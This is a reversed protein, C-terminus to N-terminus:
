KLYQKIIGVIKDCSNDIALKKANMAMMLCQERDLANICDALKDVTLEDQIFIKAANQQVLPLANYYQHNDVAHPYPIFIAALGVSAIESVTSAGSRCIILDTDTYIQAMNHIFNTVEAKIGLKSYKNQITQINGKGAQHVIKNINTIKSCVLPMIENLISAGLSGGVILLNLGATRTTYRTLPPPIQLM